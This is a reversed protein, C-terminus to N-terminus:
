VFGTPSRPEGRDLEEWEQSDNDIIDYDATAYHEGDKLVQVGNVFVHKVGVFKRIM